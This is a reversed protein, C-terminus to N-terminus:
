SGAPRSPSGTGETRIYLRVLHRRTDEPLPGRGHLMRRNDIFLCQGRKLVIALVDRRREHEVLRQFRELLLRGAENQPPEVFWPVYFVAWESGRRSVLPAHYLVEEGTVADPQAHRVQVRGLAVLEDTSFESLLPRTDVLQTAGGTADPEVCYWGLMAATPRDTHLELAASAYVGPRSPQHRRRERQERDRAADVVIDTRLEIEGLCAGIQEFESLPRPGAVRIWGRSKVAMRIYDALAAPDAPEIGRECVAAGAPTSVDGPRDTSESM